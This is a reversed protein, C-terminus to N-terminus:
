VKQTGQAGPRVRARGVNRPGTAVRACWRQVAGVPVGADRGVARVAARLLDDQDVAAAIRAGPRHLIRDTADPGKILRLFSLVFAAAVLAFAINLALNMM